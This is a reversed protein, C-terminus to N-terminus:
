SFDNIASQLNNIEQRIDSAPVLTPSGNPKIVLDSLLSNFTKKTIAKEMATIGLLSKNYIIAEPIDNTILKKAVADPDSYKRASKGEVLKYGKWRTGSLAKVLAYEEVSKLWSAIKSSQGLIDAIEDETLLPADKFELQAIRLNETSYARCQERVKCFRCHDGTAFEGKGEKALEAKPMVTNLLWDKLEEVGVKWSSINDLRPQYITLEVEDVNYIFGYKALAGLAYIKMQSNNVCSVPVGKGYKLDIIRLLGDSLIVTDGTGEDEVSYPLPLKEEVEIITYPVREEDEAYKDLVFQVYGSILEDMEENYYKSEKMKEIEDLYDEETIRDLARNLKVEALAHATTGEKAAESEREPMDAELLASPPCALWRSAGSPSLLAHQKSM